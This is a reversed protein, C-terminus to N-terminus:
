LRATNYKCSRNMVANEWIKAACVEFTDAVPSYRGISTWRQVALKDASGGAAMGSNAMAGNMAAANDAATAATMIPGSSVPVPRSSDKSAAAIARSDKPGFLHRSACSARIQGATTVPWTAATTITTSTKDAM